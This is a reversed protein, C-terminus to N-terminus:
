QSKQLKRILGKDVDIHKTKVYFNQFTEGSSVKTEKHVSQMSQPLVPPSLKTLGGPVQFSLQLLGAFLLIDLTLVYISSHM